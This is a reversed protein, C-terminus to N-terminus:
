IMLEVLKKVENPNKNSYRAEKDIQETSKQKNTRQKNDEFFKKLRPIKIMPGFLKSKRLPNIKGQRM